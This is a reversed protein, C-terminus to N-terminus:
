TITNFYSKDGINATVNLYNVVSSLNGTYIYEAWGDANPTLTTSIGVGFSDSINLSAITGQALQGVAVTIKVNFTNIDGYLGSYLIRSPGTLVCSGSVCSENFTCVHGCAGCNTKNSLLNVECGNIYSGDCDSYGDVTCTSVSCVGGTTCTIIAKTAPNFKIKGCYWAGSNNVLIEGTNCDPLTASKQQISKDSFELDTYLKVNGAFAPSISILLMALTVIFKM